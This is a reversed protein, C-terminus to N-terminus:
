PQRAQGTSRGPLGFGAIIASTTATPLVVRRTIVVMAM